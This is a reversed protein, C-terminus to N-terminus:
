LARLNARIARRDAADLRWDLRSKVDFYVVARLRPFARTTMMDALWDPRARGPASGFEAIWVPLNPELRTLTAYMPAFVEEFSRWHGAGWNFGDIGLVDVYASGPWISRVPTNSPGSSADVNFVFKLNRIGRDHFFSVVYRWAAIFEAATGGDRKGGDPTPQWTSWNGNMEPWPRVYIDFPFERVANAVAQLYSDRRHATVESFRVNWPEWSLLVKRKGGAAMWKENPGPFVYSWDVYTSAIDVPRGLEAELGPLRVRGAPLDDVAAGFLFSAGATRAEAGSTGLLAISVLVAVATKASRNM